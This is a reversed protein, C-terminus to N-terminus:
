GPDVDDRRVADPHGAWEISGPSTRRPHDRRPRRRRGGVEHTAHLTCVEFCTKPRAILRARCLRWAPDPPYGTRVVIPTDPFFSGYRQPTIYLAAEGLALLHNLVHLARWTRFYGVVNPPFMAGNRDLLARMRDILPRPTLSPDRALNIRIM